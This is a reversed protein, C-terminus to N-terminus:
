SLRARYVAAADHRGWTEYLQILGTLTATLDRVSPSSQLGLERHADLLVLEADAYRRQAVLSAGLLAKTTAVSWDDEDITRRRSPVLGPARARIPLAERLLSEAVVPQHLALEIAALNIAYIAVLQHDSGLVPRAIALAEQLAAAAEDTRGQEALVHSLSNLTRAVVPHRDGLTRRSISLSQRFM